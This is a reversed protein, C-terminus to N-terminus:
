RKELVLKKKIKFVVGNDGNVGVEITGDRYRKKIYTYARRAEKDTPFPLCESTGVECSEIYRYMPAWRHSGRVLVPVAGRHKTPKVDYPKGTDYDVIKFAVVSGDKEVKYEADM